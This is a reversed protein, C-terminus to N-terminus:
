ISLALIPEPIPILTDGKKYDRSYDETLEVTYMYVGHQYSYEILMIKGTYPRSVTHKDARFTIISGIQYRPTQSNKKTQDRDECGRADDETSLIKECLSCKYLTLEEV